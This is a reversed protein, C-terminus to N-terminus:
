VLFTLSYREDRYKIQWGGAEDIQKGQRAEVDNAIVFINDPKDGLVNHLLAKIIPTMGSSLVVIPVNNGRAWHYFEVFHPDFRINNQLVRVCEDFPLPVSDLMAKFADRIM